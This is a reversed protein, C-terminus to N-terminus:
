FASAPIEIKLETVQDPELKLTLRGRKWSLPQGNATTSADKFNKKLKEQWGQITLDIGAPLNKIEFSGDAKTVAVYSDDRPLLYASMWPHISCSVPVPEKESKGPVYSATSSAPVNLNFARARRADIKTNHPVPDSNIINLTQTAQMVAVHSLFVCARQDFDVKDTKGAAADPHVNDGTLDAAYFVVNALGKTSPDVAVNESYVPKGGPQCVSQEKTISLAVPSAVDGSVTVTGRLTAWGTSKQVVKEKAAGGGDSAKVLQIRLEKASERNPIEGRPSPQQCGAIMLAVVTTVCLINTKM